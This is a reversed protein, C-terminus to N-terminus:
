PTSGQQLASRARESATTVAEDPALKGEVVTEQYTALVANAADDFNAIAQPYVANALADVFPRRAPEAFYPDDKLATIAPLYGLDKIFTLNNADEMLFKIFEWARAQREPTTRLLMLARGGLTSYSTDGENPVPVPVVGVDEGITMPHEKADSLNPEWSYGYQPWMGISRSFFSQEMTLPAYQQAQKTFDFFSQMQCEPQDFVVDTGLRNLLQCENQNANLYIPQLMNWYWGGWTLADNWFVTGYVKTGDPRNPLAQIAKAADLFEAFTAPPREPDLGAEKFLEKNYIMMTVDVGLPVYFNQGLDQQLTQEDVRAFLEQAGPLDTLPVIAEQAAYKAPMSGFSGTIIDPQNGAAILAEFAGGEPEQVVQVKMGPNAQEFAKAMAEMTEQMAGAVVAIQITGPTVEGAQGAPAAAPEASDGAPATPQGSDGLAGGVAATPEGASGPTRETTGGCAALLMALITLLPILYIGSCRGSTSRQM